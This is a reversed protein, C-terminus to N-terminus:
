PVHLAIYALFFIVVNCTHFIKILLKNRPRLLILSIYKKCLIIRLEVKNKIDKEQERISKMNEM